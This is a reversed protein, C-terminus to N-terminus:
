VILPLTFPKERYQLYLKISEGHDFAFEDFPLLKDIPIWEVKSSEADNTGTHELPELIFELAINQRDEKPRNPNSNIRFLTKVKTKWGTEEFVERVIAQEVTEDRNVFGSPLSWKGAELLPPARKELLLCGDKEIVAHVVVHRFLAKGGDEFSCTIMNEKKITM